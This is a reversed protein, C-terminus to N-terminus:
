EEQVTSAAARRRGKREIQVKWGAPVMLPEGGKCRWSPRSLLLV